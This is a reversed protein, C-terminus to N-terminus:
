MEWCKDALKSACDHGVAILRVTMAVIFM